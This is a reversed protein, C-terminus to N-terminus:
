SLSQSRRTESFLPPNHINGQPGLDAAQSLDLFEGAPGNPSSEV